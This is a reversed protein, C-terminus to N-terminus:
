FAGFQKIAASTFNRYVKKYLKEIIYVPNEILLKKGFIFKEFTLFYLSFLRIKIM